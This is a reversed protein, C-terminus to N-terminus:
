NRSAAFRSAQIASRPCAGRGPRCGQNRQHTQSLPATEYNPRPTSTAIPRPSPQFHRLTGERFVATRSVMGYFFATVSRNEYDIKLDFLDLQSLETDKHAYVDENLVSTEDRGSLFIASCAIKAKYASGEAILPYYKYASMSLGAILLIALGWLIRRKNIKTEGM